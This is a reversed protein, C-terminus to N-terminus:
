NRSAHWMDYFDTLNLYLDAFITPRMPLPGIDHVRYSAFYMIM